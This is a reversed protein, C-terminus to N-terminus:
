TPKEPGVLGGGKDWSESFKVESEDVPKWAQEKMFKIKGTLYAKQVEAFQHEKMDAVSIERPLKSLWIPGRKPLRM